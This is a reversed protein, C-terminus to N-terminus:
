RSAAAEIHDGTHEVDRGFGQVTRCSTGIIAFLASTIILIILSKRSTKMAKFRPTEVQHSSAM